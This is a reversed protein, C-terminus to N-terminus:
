SPLNSISPLYTFQHTLIYFPLHTLIYTIILQYTHLGLSNNLRTLLSRSWNPLMPHGMQNSCWQEDQNLIDNQKDLKVLHGLQSSAM